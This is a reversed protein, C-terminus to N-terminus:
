MVASFNGHDVFRMIKRFQKGSMHVLDTHSGAEFFVDPCPGLSEDMLVEVGYAEGIPPVAGTECDWFLDRLEAENALVLNRHLKKNLHELDIHRNAPLVVMLYGAEDALVVSKAIQNGSIHTIEATAMSNSTPIHHILDYRIDSDELFEELTLAIAM